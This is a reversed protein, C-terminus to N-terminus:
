WVGFLGGTMFEEDHKRERKERLWKSKQGDALVEFALGGAFMGLGLVDTLKLGAGAFAAAPVANVTVVPMVCLSVWTAQMMFAGWFRLPSKKIEDFRSDSGQARVRTFLYTGV